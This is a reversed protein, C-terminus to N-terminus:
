EGVRLCGEVTGWARPAVHLNEAKEGLSWFGACPGQALSARKDVTGEGMSYVCVCVCVEGGEQQGAM